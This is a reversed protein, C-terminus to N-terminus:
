NSAAFPTGFVFLCLKAHILIFFVFCIIYSNPLEFFIRSLNLQFIESISNKDNYQQKFCIVKKPENSSNFM